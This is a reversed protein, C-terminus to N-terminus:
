RQNRVMALAAAATLYVFGSVGHRFKQWGGHASLASLRGSLVAYGSDALTALMWFLGSLLIIQEQYPQDATVFQPLFASFFMITKPNTLSVWFGRRFSAGRAVVMDSARCLQLLHSVGLYVLYAIGAWKLCALGEALIMVFWATATAAIVLQVLMALSTGAVTQLARSVGQSLGTAVIVLVNPGPLLIVGLSVLIFGLMM